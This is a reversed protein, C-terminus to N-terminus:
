PLTILVSCRLYDKSFEKNTILCWLQGSIESIKNELGNYGLDEEYLTKKIWFSILPGLITKEYEVDIFEIEKNDELMKVLQVEDFHKYKIINSVKLLDKGAADIKDIAQVVRISDDLTYTLLDELLENLTENSKKLRFFLTKHMHKWANPNVKQYFDKFEIYYDGDKELLKGPEEVLDINFIDEIYVCDYNKYLDSIDRDKNFHVGAASLINVNM